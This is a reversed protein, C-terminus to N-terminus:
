GDAPIRGIGDGRRGRGSAPPRHGARRLGGLRPPELAPDPRRGPHRASRCGAPQHAGGPLLPRGVLVRHERIDRLSSGEDDGMVHFPYRSHPTLLQLPFDALGPDRRPDEYAPMYQNLPPRDPDDIRKLTSAVFEFKGSPTQLGEGFDGRYDSPLPYPEPV